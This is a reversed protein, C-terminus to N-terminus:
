SERRDDTWQHFNRHQDTQHIDSKIKLLPEEANFVAPHFASLWRLASVGWFSFLSYVTQADSIPNAIYKETGEQITMKEYVAKIVKFRISRNNELPVKPM